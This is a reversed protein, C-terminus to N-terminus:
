VELVDFILRTRKSLMETSKFFISTSRSPSTTTSVACSNLAKRNQHLIRIAHDAALFQQFFHPSVLIIRGGAGHVIMNESKALFQLAIDGFWYVEACYMPHAVLEDGSTKTNRPLAAAIRSHRKRLVARHSRLVESVM